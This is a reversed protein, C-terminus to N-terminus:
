PVKDVKNWKIQGTQDDKLNLLREDEHTIVSINLYTVNEPEWLTLPERTITVQKTHTSIRITIFGEATVVTGNEESGVEWGRGKGRDKM